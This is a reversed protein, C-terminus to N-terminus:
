VIRDLAAQKEDRGASYACIIDYTWVEHTEGGVQYQILVEPRFEQRGDGDTREGLRTKLVTATTELFEHNARWEPVVMKVLLLLLFATGMGLLIALFLAEGASGLLKSGTRRHGRKQGFM